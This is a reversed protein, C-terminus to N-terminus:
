PTRREAAIADVEFRMDPLALAAVGILTQAPPQSGWIEAITTVLATLKDVNHDVIYTRLMLVDGFDLGAARLATGLNSRVRVNTRLIASLDAPRVAEGAPLRPVLAVLGVLAALALLRVTAFALRWGFRDGVLASLPVGLM